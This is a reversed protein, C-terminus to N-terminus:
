TPNLSYTLTIHITVQLLRVTVHTIATTEVKAAITQIAKQIM